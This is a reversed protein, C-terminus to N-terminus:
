RRWIHGRLNNLGSVISFDQFQFALASLFRPPNSHNFFLRGRLLNAIIRLRDFFRPSASILCITSIRSPHLSLSVQSASISAISSRNNLLYVRWVSCLCSRMRWAKSRLFFLSDLPSLETRLTADGCSCIASSRMALNTASFWRSSDSFLRSSSCNARQAYLAWVRPSSSVKRLRGNGSTFRPCVTRRSFCEYNM